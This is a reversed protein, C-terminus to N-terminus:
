RLYARSILPQLRSENWTREGHSTSLVGSRSSSRKGGGADQELLGFWGLDPDLGRFGTPDKPLTFEMWLGANTWGREQRASKSTQVTREEWQGTSNLQPITIPQIGILKICAVALLRSNDFIRSINIMGMIFHLFLLTFSTVGSLTM